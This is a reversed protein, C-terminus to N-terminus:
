MGAQWNKVGESPYVLMLINLLLNDRITYGVFAEMLLALFVTVKVPLRWALLFGIMAAFLDSVSNLISDGYYDASITAERYHNIIADTNEVIEWAGELLVAVLIRSRVPWKPLLYRLIMYFFFGHIIHSPTYWDSIHQSNESSVVAGHWLKVSNCECIAPQGMVFLILVFVSVMLAFIFGAERRTIYDKFFTM